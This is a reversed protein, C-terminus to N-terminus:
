ESAPYKYSLLSDTKLTSQSQACFYTLGMLETMDMVKFGNNTLLQNVNKGSLHKNPKADLFSFITNLFPVRSVIGDIEEETQIYQRDDSSIRRFSFGNQRKNDVFCGILYCRPPLILFMSHLFNNIEKIHNLEKINVVTKVNKMEEPDYYYHHAAPLVVLKPDSSLGLWEIYHRFSENGESALIESICNLKILDASDSEVNGSTTIRQNNGRETERIEIRGRM